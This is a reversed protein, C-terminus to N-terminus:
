RQGLQIVPGVGRASIPRRGRIPAGPIPCLCHRSRRDIRIEVGATGICNVDRGCSGSVRRKQVSSSSSNRVVATARKRQCASAARLARIAHQTYVLAREHEGSPAQVGSRNGDARAAREEYLLTLVGALSSPPLCGMDSFTFGGCIIPKM